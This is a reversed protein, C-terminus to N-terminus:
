WVVDYEAVLLEMARGEARVRTGAMVWLAETFVGCHFDPVLFDRKFLLRAHRDGLWEITRTGYSVVTRYAAGTQSLLRRPDRGAIAAVTRGLPTALWHHGARAGLEWFVGRVGDLRSELVEAAAWALRLYDAVPYSFYDWRRGTGAPDCARAAPEGALERLVEFAGNFILGRVTDRPTSAAIRAALSGDEFGAGPGIGGMILLQPRVPRRAFPGRERQAV